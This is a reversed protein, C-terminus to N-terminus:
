DEETAEDEDERLSSRQSVHSLRDEEAQLFEVINQSLREIWDPEPLEHVDRELYEAWDYVLLSSLRLGFEATLTVYTAIGQESELGNEEAEQVAADIHAMPDDLSGLQMPTYGLAILHQYLHDHFSDYSANALTDIQDQRIFM